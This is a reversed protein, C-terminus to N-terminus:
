QSACIDFNVRLRGIAAVYATLAASLKERADDAEIAADRIHVPVSPTAEAFRQKEITSRLTEIEAATAAARESLRTCGTRNHQAVCPTAAVLAILVATSAIRM